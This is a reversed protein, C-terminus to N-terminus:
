SHRTMTPVAATRTLAPSTDPLLRQLIPTTAITTVLAMLVMMTFLTPSIVGLELGVNLVILEMLGRTNMLVGLGAAYRSSLGTARGAMFTGGFKGATAVAVILGCVVWGQADSLLGIQTRMGTFAFFAPLLLITALHELSEQLTRALRSEHPIIAGFLFAGFIAHIGISETILASSLMGVLVLSVAGPTVPHTEFRNTLGTVLPRILAFMIVIFAITMVGVLLASAAATNVVGVVFALLCWATVDGIAACTLAITGLETRSIGRDTLIRALVPFATISMALGLFLAFSTFPVDAPAYRPYIYVALGAGLVFPLVISAHSIAITSQVRNRLLEPNLELGVLFMYIIVGLQAIIGLFPAVRGPLIFEYAAPSILGLLSPGLVIGGIVEGIVPPQGIRRFAFGLLRGVTVVAALALLLHPLVNQTAGVPIQSDGVISTQPPSLTEGYQRVALFVAIAAIITLIYFGLTKM